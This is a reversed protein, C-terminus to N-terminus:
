SCIDFEMLLIVLTDYIEHDCTPIVWPSIPTTQNTNELVIKQEQFCFISFVQRTLFTTKTKRTRQTRLIASKLSCFFPTKGMKKSNISCLFGYLSCRNQTHTHTHKKKKKELDSSKKIM